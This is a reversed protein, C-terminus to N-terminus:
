RYFYPYVVELELEERISEFTIDALMGLGEYFMHQCAAAPIFLEFYHHSWTLFHEQLYEEVLDPRNLALWGLLSIMVGIHDQPEKNHSLRAIGKKRMWVGLDICSDGFMVSEHDTYVSGWPPAEKFGPGVFLKQYARALSFVNGNTQLGYVMIELATELQELDGFPWDKADRQPEFRSLAWLLQKMEPNKPSMNFLPALVKCTMVINAQMNKDIM